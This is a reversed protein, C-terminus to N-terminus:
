ADQTAAKSTHSPLFYIDLDIGIGWKALRQIEDAAISESSEMTCYLTRKLQQDLMNKKNEDDLKELADCVAHITEGLSEYAQLQFVRYHHKRVLHPARSNWIDGVNWGAKCEFPLAVVLAQLHMTPHTLRLSILM